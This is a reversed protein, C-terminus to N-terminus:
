SKKIGNIIYNIFYYMSKYLSLNEVNRYVNWTWIASKVKNGSLSTSSKRYKALIKDIKENEIDIMNDMLKISLKAHKSLKEINLKADQTFPNDVYSYLNFSLLRCADGAALPIEGCNHVLINNAFFNHNDKVTIDYVNENSIVNIKKIRTKKIIEM